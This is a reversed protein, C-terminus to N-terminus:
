TGGPGDVRGGPRVLEPSGGSPGPGLLGDGRLVLRLCGRRREHGDGSGPYGPRGKPRRRPAARGGPYQPLGGVEADVRGGEARARRRQRARAARHVPLDGPAVRPRQCSQCPRAPGALMAPVDRHGRPLGPRGGGAEGRRFVLQRHELVDLRPRAPDQHRGAGGGATGRPRRRDATGRRAVRSVRRALFPDDRDAGPRVRARALAHLDDRCEAATWELSDITRRAIRSRLEAIGPMASWRRSMLELLLGNIQGLAAESRRQARARSEEAAAASAQAKQRQERERDLAQRTRGREHLLLGIGAGAGVMLALLLLATTAVLGAVVPNRRCWLWARELGPVPRAQIPEGGLWRELDEALALASAYRREPEKELSKLCITELDRDVGRGVGSPPEPQTHRVRELTELVSDGRFPPRGTLLAYLVAGLGYVDTATTVAKRQGSAQEPAMYSPTGLIAGSQTLESDGEVRKALGFDTVHPRGEADILINSPKLDRHLVGRQHAHHVARAVTAVIRVAARPDAAPGPPRRALSTGEILKMAFYSFGDHDGVEHIPVINPHDLRAVAEAELRFRRVDDDDALGGSRLIKLAVLRNLSRQRARYVVGMGGRDIEALVEYDDIVRATADGSPLLGGADFGPAVAAVVAITRLPETLRLLRDQEGLFAALEDALDPHRDLLAKRNPVQGAKAAEFYEALVECLRREPDALDDLESAM